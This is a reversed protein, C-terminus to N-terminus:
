ESSYTHFVTKSRSNAILNGAELLSDFSEGGDGWWGQIIEYGIDDREIYANNVDTIELEGRASPTLHKIIDWVQNDYFYIGAVALPSPPDAPKEHIKIIKDNKIEAIGYSQPNNVEKLFVFAGHGRDLFKRLGPTINDMLVNDGLIVAIPENDSFDQALALAEAIGGADAQIAYSLKLNVGDFAGPGDLRRIDDLFASGDSLLELFDGAHGIGSVILIDDIGSKLLTMLPYYIMPRDYVPLLHKNTVKTLPYLRSGTGGALIVGKM